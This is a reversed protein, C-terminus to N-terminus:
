NKVNANENKVVREIADEVAQNQSDNEKKVLNLSQDKDSKDKLRYLVILLVIGTFTALLINGLSLKKTSNPTEVGNLDPSEQPIEMSNKTFVKHESNSATQQPVKAFLEDLTLKVYKNQM